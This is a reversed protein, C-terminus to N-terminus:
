EVAMTPNQTTGYCQKGDPSLVFNALIDVTSEPSKIIYSAEVIIALVDETKKDQYLTIPAPQINKLSDIRKQTNVIAETYADVLVKNKTNVIDAQYKAKEKEVESIEKQLRFSDVKELYAISDGVTIKKIEKVNKFKIDTDSSGGDTSQIYKEVTKEYSNGCSTVVLGLTVAAILYYRVKM